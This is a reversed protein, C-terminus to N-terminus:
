PALTAAGACLLALGRAFTVDDDEGAADDFTVPFSTRLRAWAQPDSEADAGHEAQEQLVFGTVYGLVTDAVTGADRRTLGADTLTTLLRELLRLAGTSAVAPASALLEAGGARRRLTARLASAQATVSAQWDTADALEALASTGADHAEHAIRDALLRLLAAKDPVHYYLSGAQADLRAAVARMSLGRLGHEAHVALAADVIRDATLKV